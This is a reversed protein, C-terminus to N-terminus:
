RPKVWYGLARSGSATRVIVRFTLRYGRSAPPWQAFDRYRGHFPYGRLKRKSTGVEAVHATGLPDIVEVTLKGRV